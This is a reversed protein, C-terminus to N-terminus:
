ALKRAEWVVRRSLGEPGRAARITLGDTRFREPFDPGYDWFVLVGRPDLPDRHYEPPEILHVIQGADIKARQFTAQRPPVTFIHVGGPRLVRASERFAAAADPVHELVDSSVIMDLSEDAFTLKTIDECVAGDERVTGPKIHDRYFSRRYSKAGALLPRLPSGPDLELVDLTSIDRGASRLYDAMMEYRLNARCRICLRLEEGEGVAIFLSRKTCVRCRRFSSSPLHHLNPIVRSRLKNVLEAFSYDTIWWGM